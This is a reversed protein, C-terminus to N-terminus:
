FPLDDPPAAEKPEEFEALRVLTRKAQFEPEVYVEGTWESFEKRFHYSIREEFSETVRIAGAEVLSGVEGKAKGAIARQVASLDRGTRQAISEFSSRNYGDESAFMALDRLVAADRRVGEEWRGIRVTRRSWLEDELDPRVWRDVVWMNEVPEDDGLFDDVGRKHAEREDRSAHECIPGCEPTPAVIHADVGYSRLADRALLAQRIVADPDHYLERTRDWDSDCVVHVRKGQLHDRAFAPLEEARWLTVSPCSFAVHGHSVLAADKMSGELSFFVREADPLGALSRPNISLRRALEEETPISRRHEHEEDLPPVRIERHVRMEGYADVSAVHEVPRGSAADTAMRLVATKDAVYDSAALADALTAHHQRETKHSHQWAEHQHRM